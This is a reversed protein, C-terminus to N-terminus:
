VLLVLHSLPDLLSAPMPPCPHRLDATSSRGSGPKWAEWVGEGGCHGTGRGEVEAKARSKERSGRKEGTYRNCFSPLFWNGNGRKAKKEDTLHPQM